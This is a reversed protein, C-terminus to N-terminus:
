CEDTKNEDFKQIFYYDYKYNDFDNDIIKLEEVTYSKKGIKKNKDTDLISFHIYELNLSLLKTIFRFYFEKNVSCFCDLLFAKLNPMKDINNYINELINMEILQKDETIKFYFKALSKFTVQCKSDFLPFTQLDNIYYISYIKIQTLEDFPGCYFQIFHNFYKIELTISNIKSKKNEIIKLFPKTTNPSVQLFESSKIKITLDSLNPFKNLLNNLACNSHINGWNIVLKTISNNEGRINAIEDSNIRFLSFNIKKLSKITLIKKIIQSEIANSSNKGRNYLNVNELPINELKFFDIESGSFSKLKLLSKFDIKSYYGLVFLDDFVCSELNPFKLRTNSKNIKSVDSNGINLDKISSCSKESISFNFCGELFLIELNTLKIEFEPNFVFGALYLFKLSKFNNINNFINSDIELGADDLLFLRLYVLNNEINKFSFLTKMLHNDKSNIDSPILTLKKIKNFDINYERLNDIKENGNSTFYISSYNVNSKNLKNFVEIYDNKLNYKDIMDQNIEIEYKDLEEAKSIVDFFPSYINIFQYKEYIIKEYFVKETQNSLMEFVIKELEDKMLNKSLLFQELNENLIDKGVGSTEYLYKKLNFRIKKLYKEKYDISKIGLRKQFLKSYTFLKLQIDDKVYFLIQKLIYKSNIKEILRQENM